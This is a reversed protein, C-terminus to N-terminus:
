QQAVASMALPRELLSSHTNHQPTPVAGNGSVDQARARTHTHTGVQRQRQRLKLHGRRYLMPPQRRDGRTHIGQREVHRGGREREEKRRNGGESGQETTTSRATEASGCRTQGHPREPAGSPENSPACCRLPCSQHCPSPPPPLCCGANVPNQICTHGNTVSNELTALPSQTPATHCSLSTLVRTTNLKQPSCYFWRPQFTSSADPQVPLGQLATTSDPARVTHQCTSSCSLEINSSVQLLQPNLICVTPHLPASSLPAVPNAHCQAFNAVSLAFSLNCGQTHPQSARSRNTSHQQLLAATFAQVAM